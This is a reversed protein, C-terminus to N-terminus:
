IIIKCSFVYLMCTKKKEQVVSAYMDVINIIVRMYFYRTSYFDIYKM